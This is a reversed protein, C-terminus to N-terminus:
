LVRRIQVFGASASGQLGADGSPRRANRYGSLLYALHSDIFDNMFNSQSYQDNRRVNGHYRTNHLHLFQVYFCRRSRWRLKFMMDDVAAVDAGEVYVDLCTDSADTTFTVSLLAHAVHVSCPWGGVWTPGVRHKRVNVAPTYAQWFVASTIYPDLPRLNQDFQDQQLFQRM